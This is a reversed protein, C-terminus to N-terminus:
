IKFEKGTDGSSFNIQQDFVIEPSGVITNNQISLHYSNYWEDIASQTGSTRFAAVSAEITNGSVVIKSDQPGTMGGQWGSGGDALWIAIGTNSSVINNNLIEAGKGIANGRAHS